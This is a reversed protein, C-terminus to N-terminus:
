PELICISPSPLAGWELARAQFIRHISSGQPSWDMPDSPTPCSQAVENESKVKMCQLLFHCGVGTNKIPSDWPCPLRTPQWRHPRVSNSVVSAVECSYVSVSLVCNLWFCCSILILVFGTSLRCPGVTYEFLICVHTFFTFINTVWDHRVRQSGMSQLWRPEETWPIEWARISSHTAMGKELSDKWGLILGLDEANCASEKSDSGGSFGWIYTYM